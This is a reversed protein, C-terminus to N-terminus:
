VGVGALEQTVAAIVKEVAADGVALGAVTRAPQPHLRCIGRETLLVDGPVFTYRHLFDLM